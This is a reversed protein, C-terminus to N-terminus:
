KAQAKKVAALSDRLPVKSSNTANQEMAAALQEYASMAPNVYDNMWRALSVVENVDM